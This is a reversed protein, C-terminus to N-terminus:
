LMLPWQIKVVAGDGLPWQLGVLLTQVSSSQLLHRGGVVPAFRRQLGGAGNQVRGQLVGLDAAETEDQLTPEPVLNESPDRDAETRQGASGERPGVPVQPPQVEEGAGAGPPAHVCGQLAEAEEDPVFQRM